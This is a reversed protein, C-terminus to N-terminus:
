KSVTMLGLLGEKLYIVGPEQVGCTGLIQEGTVTSDKRTLHPLEATGTISSQSAPLNESTSLGELIKLRSGDRLLEPHNVSKM